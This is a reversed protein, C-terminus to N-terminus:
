AGGPISEPTQLVLKCARTASLAFVIFLILDVLGIINTLIPIWFLVLGLIGVIVNGHALGTSVREGRVGHADMYRNLDGALGGYAVFWWYFCYFPVFSLGVAKGPTTQRWEAPLCSWWRHMLICWAVIGPVSVALLIFGYLGVAKDSHNSRDPAFFPAITGAIGFFIAAALPADLSGVNPREGHGRYSSTGDAAQVTVPLGFSPKPISIWERCRPCPVSQGGMNESFEVREACNACHFTIM